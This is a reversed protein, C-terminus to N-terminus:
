ASPRGRRDRPVQDDDIAPRAPSAAVRAARLAVVRNYVVSVFYGAVFGYAGGWALAIFSGALSVDYGVFFQALLALHPGVKAGGRLVLWNTALFFGVGVMLGAAVGQVVAELRVTRVPLRGVVVPESM